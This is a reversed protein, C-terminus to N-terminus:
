EEEFKSYFKSLKYIKQAGGLEKLLLIVKKAKVKVM